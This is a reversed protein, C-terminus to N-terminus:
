FGRLEVSQCALQMNTHSFPSVLMSIERDNRGCCPRFQVPDLVAGFGYRV